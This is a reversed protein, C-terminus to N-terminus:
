YKQGTRSEFSAVIAAKNGPQAAIAAAAMARENAINSSVPTVVPSSPKETSVDTPKIQFNNMLEAVPKYRPQGDATVLGNAKLGQLMYNRQAAFVERQKEVPMNQKATASVHTEGDPGVYSKFDVLDKWKGGMEDMMRSNMFDLASTKVKGYVIGKEEDTKVATAEKNLKIAQQTERQQIQLEKRKEPSLTKDALQLSVRDLRGELTKDSVRAEEEVKGINALAAQAKAKLAPDNSTEANLALRKAEAKQEDFSALPAINFGTGVDMRPQKYTSTARLIDPSVGMAAASQNFAAEGAAAGFNKVFNPSPATDPKVYKQQSLDLHRDIAESASKGSLSEAEGVLAGLNLNSPDAGAKIKEQLLSMLIPNKTAKFYQEETGAIGSGKLFDIGGKLKNALETNQTKVKQYNDFMSKAQLQAMTAARKEEEDITETVGKAAGGLFGTLMIGM